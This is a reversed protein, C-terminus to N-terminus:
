VAGSQPTRAEREQAGDLVQRVAQMLEDPTFPKQLLPHPRNVTPRDAGAEGTYGSMYLAKMKPRGPQLRAVVERGTLRPMVMDTVILHITGSYQGAIALAEQGDQAELVTYGHLRLTYRLLARVGAEDEVLLVTETGGPRKAKGLEARGSEISEEVQPLHIKFTTGHELRSELDIFGGSQKIIGYVTALGLGTGEGQEKTTFFPEFVHSQTETDMGRGSDTVSLVVHRRSAVAVGSRSSEPLEANDTRITLSGGRPMADRANVALNFLVQELQGPDAKVAGLRPELITVLHIDEGILRRLMPELGAVVTNLDLVKPRLVQRRSFALLQHTLSKAREGAKKIEVVDLRTSDDDALRDLLVHSYGLIVTLLNNFDHAIGGALRGIAELKATQRLQEELQKRETVEAQLQQNVMLLRATREIVRAELAGHAQRLEEEARKRQTIDRIIVLSQDDPLPAFRAEYFKDDDKIRLPYEVSVMTKRHQMEHFAEGLKYGENAIPIEGIRQGVVKDLPLALDTSEGAKVDVVRGEADLRFCLDPFAQVVAQMESNTRLPEQASLNLSRQVMPRDSEAERYAGDVAEIFGQLDKPVSDPGGFFQTLQRILLPHYAM